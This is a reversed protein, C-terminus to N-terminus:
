NSPNGDFTRPTFNSFKSILGVIENKRAAELRDKALTTRAKTHNYVSMLANYERRNTRYFQGINPLISQALTDETTQILKLREEIHIPHQMSKAQESIVNMKAEMVNMWQALSDHTTRDQMSM